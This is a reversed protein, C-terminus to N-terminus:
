GKNPGFAIHGVEALFIAGPIDPPQAPGQPALEVWAMPMSTGQQM